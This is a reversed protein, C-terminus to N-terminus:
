IIDEVAVDEVDDFDGVATGLILSIQMLLDLLFDGLDSLFAAFDFLEQTRVATAGSFGCIISAFSPLIASHVRPLAM